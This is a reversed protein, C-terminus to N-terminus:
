ISRYAVPDRKRPGTKNDLAMRPSKAIRVSPSIGRTSRVTRNPTRLRRRRRTRICSIREARTPKRSQQTNLPSRRHRDARKHCPIAPMRQLTELRLNENKKEVIDRLATNLDARIMADSSEENEENEEDPEGHRRRTSRGERRM